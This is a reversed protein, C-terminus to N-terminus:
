LIHLLSSKQRISLPNQSPQRSKSELEHQDHDHHHDKNDHLKKFLTTRKQRKKHQIHQIRKNFKEIHVKLTILSHLCFSNYYMYILITIICFEKNGRIILEHTANNQPEKIYLTLM